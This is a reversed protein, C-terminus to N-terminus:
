RHATLPTRCLYLTRSGGPLPERRSITFHEELLKEFVDIRYDPFLGERKNGLFQQAMPDHPEVFEVVLRRRRAFAAM